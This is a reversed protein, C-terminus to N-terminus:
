HEKLNEWLEAVERALTESDMKPVKDMLARVDDEGSKMQRSLMYSDIEDSNTIAGCGTVQGIFEGGRFVPVAFRALGAECFDNVPEGAAKIEATMGQATQACIFTRNEKNERISNCLSNQEGSKLVGQAEHDLLQVTMNLKQHLEDLLSQWKEKGYVEIINM